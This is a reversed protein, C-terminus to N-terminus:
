SNPALPSAEEWIGPLDVVGAFFCIEKLFSLIPIHPDLLHWIGFGGKGFIELRKIAMDAIHINVEESEIYHMFFCNTSMEEPDAHSVDILAGEYCYM